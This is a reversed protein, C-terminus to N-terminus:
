LVLTPHNQSVENFKIVMHERTVHPNFVESFFGFYVSLCVCLMQLTEGVYFSLCKITDTYCYLIYDFEHLEPM